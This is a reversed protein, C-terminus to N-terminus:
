TRTCTSSSRRSQRRWPRGDDDHVGLGRPARAAAVRPRHGGGCSASSPSWAPIVGQGTIAETWFVFVLVALATFPAGRRAVTRARDRVSATSRSRWSRRATCRRVAPGAHRRRVPRLPHLLDLVSGTFERQADIPLGRVLDGLAVGILLPAVVSGVTTLRRGLDAAVAASRAQGPVRVLRRPRHAGRAAAGAGPLLRLVDDRVLRPVGRVHGRRGRDALGRQRGLAARDHQPRRPAGRRDPRRRAHLMASASTSARWSSSGPGSSPSSSSGSVALGM